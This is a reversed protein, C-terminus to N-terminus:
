SEYTKNRGVLVLDEEKYSQNKSKRHLVEQFNRRVEPHELLYKVKKYIEEDNISVIFGNLSDQIQEYAGIFNTTVIPKSLCKAEALTLCFGEHRSTQVYIDAKAIYPYPNTSSGLLIFDNELKYDKILAELRERYNGEGICYWRVEHGSNRLLALVKVALDQGKEESLRGVTVIKYGKYENDFEIKEKSMGKILEANVINPVVVSKVSSEPFMKVIQKKAEKSIIYLQDFRSYLKKYLNQNVNHKSVDFHIWSIKKKANVRNAIYFDIIDTPGQFAIAIDYTNENKSISKMVQKYYIYRNNFHKSILYTAVFGPIKYLKKERLYNRVTEQPSYMVIPKIERYWLAEEVKVWEPIFELFGGRKELLLLTVDYKEKPLTALLSLFSKEVGGINMSSLM